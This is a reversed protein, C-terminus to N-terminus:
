GITVRNRGSAKSQYMLKDARKVISDTSDNPLALTGGVSATISLLGGDIDICAKEVMIRLKNAVKKLKDETFNGSLIAVIEEGGWRILVDSTRLGQLLTNSISQLVKDGVDHGYDDNVRKFHDIDFFLVGFPPGGNHVDYIKSIFINEAYRRNRLGTLTDLMALNSLEQIELSFQECASNHSFIEVVGVIKSNKDILPNVRVSVPTRYGNKHHLFVSVERAQSDKLTEDLPCAGDCLINGKLDIHMLINCCYQKGVVESSTYGTIYEASKNWYIIKKNKDIIYLGDFLKDLISPNFLEEVYVRGKEKNNVDAM